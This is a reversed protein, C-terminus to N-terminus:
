RAAGSNDVYRYPKALDPLRYLDAVLRGATSATISRRWTQGQRLRLNYILAQSGSRHVVLRFDSVSGQENTVGLVDRTAGDPSLWLQTFGGYKQRAAGASAMAVAGGALVLALTLTALRRYSISAIWTRRADNQPPAASSNVRKRRLAPLTAFGAFTTGVLLVTWSRRNLSFHLVYLLLGGLVPISMTLAVGTAIQELRPVGERSGVQTWIYAAAVFLVLGSGVSLAAPVNIAAGICAPATGAAVALLDVASRKVESGGFM